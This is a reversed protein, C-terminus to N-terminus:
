CLSSAVCEVVFLSQHRPYSNGTHFVACSEQLLVHSPLLGTSSSSQSITEVRRALTTCSWRRKPQAPVFPMGIAYIVKKSIGRTDPRPDLLYRGKM